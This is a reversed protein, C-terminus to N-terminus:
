IVYRNRTCGIHEGRERCLVHQAALEHDAHLVQLRTQAGAGSGAAEGDVEVRGVVRAPHVVRRACARAVQRELSQGRVVPHGRAVATLQTHSIQLHNLSCQSYICTHVSIYSHNLSELGCIVIWLAHM